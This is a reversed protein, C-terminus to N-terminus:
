NGHAEAHRPNAHKGYAEATNRWFIVPTQLGQKLLVTVHIPARIWVKAEWDLGTWEINIDASIEHFILIYMCM